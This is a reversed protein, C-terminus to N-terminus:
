IHILSLSIVNGLEEHLEPSLKGSDFYRFLEPVADESITMGALYAADLPHGAIAHELNQRAITADVNMFTLTMSFALLGLLLSLAMHKLQRKYVDSAASSRSQTSGPPRGIM